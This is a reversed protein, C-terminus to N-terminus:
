RPSTRRGPEFRLSHDARSAELFAGLERLFTATLTEHEAADRFLLVAALAERHLENAEFLPVIESAIRKTEATQGAALHAQALHLSVLATDFEKESSLFVEQAAALLSVASEWERQDLAIKGRLWTYRIQLLPEELSRHKVEDEDIIALAEDHRGAEVLYTALNRRAALYLWLDSDPDFYGITDRILRVARSVKGDQYFVSALQMLVRGIGSRDGIREYFFQSRKLVDEAERFRRQDKRLSGELSDLRALVEPDSVGGLRTLRRAQGFLRDSHPLDGVARIANAMEGFALARLEHAIASDPVQNTVERALDAFHFAERPVSTLRKRCEAILLQALTPTRFRHYSRRVRGLRRDEPLRLLARLDRRAESDEAQVKPLQQQLLTPLFALARAYSGPSASLERKYAAWESACHPCFEFLHDLVMTLFSRPPLEGDAVARLLERSLHLDNM